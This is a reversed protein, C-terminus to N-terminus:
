LQVNGDIDYDIKKLDVVFKHFDEKVDKSVKHGDNKLRTYLDKSKEIIKQRETQNGSSIYKNSASLYGYGTKLRVCATDPNDNSLFTETIEFYDHATNYEVTGFTEILVDASKVKGDKVRSALENLYTVAPNNNEANTKGNGSTEIELAKAGASIEKSADSYNADKFFSLAKDFDIESQNPIIDLISYESVNGGSLNVTDKNKLSGTASDKSNCSFLFALASTLIFATITSFFRMAKNISIAKM